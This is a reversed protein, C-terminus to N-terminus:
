LRKQARNWKGYEHLILLQQWSPRLAQELLTRAACDVFMTRRLWRVGHPAVLMADMRTLM